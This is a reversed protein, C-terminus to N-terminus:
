FPQIVKANVKERMHSIYHELSKDVVAIWRDVIVEPSEKMDNKVWITFVGIFAHYYFEVLFNFDDRSLIEKELADKCLKNLQLETLTHLFQIFCNQGSANVANTYFTKNEKIYHCLKLSGDMWNSFTTSELIGDIIDVSFIWNVVDYKDQFHYYFTKRSIGCKNVIDATTIRDFPIKEMLQKMAAATANKTINSNPM